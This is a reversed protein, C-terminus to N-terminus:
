RQPGGVAGRCGVAVLSPVLESWRQLLAASEPSCGNHEAMAAVLLWDTIEGPRM